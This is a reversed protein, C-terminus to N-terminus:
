KAGGNKKPAAPKQAEYYGKYGKYSSGKSGETDPIVALLPIDGSRQTLYEEDDISTDLLNKVIVFACVLLAGALFGAIMYKRVNPGVPNTNEIAHEVVVVSSGEVFSAIKEPLVEAVAEAIIMADKSNGCTVTVKFVETENVASASIMGGIQNVSYDLGSAKAVDALVDRSELFVMYTSALSQAADLQSSSFGPSNVGYTNNVYLKVSSNYSPAIMFTAYSYGAVALIVAVMIILWGRRVLAFFLKKLDIETVERKENM